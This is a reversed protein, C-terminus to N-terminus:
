DAVPGRVIRIEHAIGGARLREGYARADAETDFLDFLVAGAGSIRAPRGAIECVREFLARMRPEVAFVAQELDNRMGARLGAAHDAVVLESLNEHLREPSRPTCQRYTEVTSVPVGGMVLAIWGDWQLRAPEVREGRGTVIAGAGGLFLPVDSGIDAALESLVQPSCAASWLTNLARLAGAANGSGGGLGASAPIGKDLRVTCGPHRGIHRSLRTAAQHVLNRHDTPISPDSCAIEVCGEPGPGVAMRDYLGIKIILSRIEHYGDDRRHLVDLVLNIKAPTRLEITQV